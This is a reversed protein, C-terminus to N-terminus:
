DHEVEKRMEEESQNLLNNLLKTIIEGHKQIREALKVVLTRKKGGVKRLAVVDDDITTAPELMQNTMNHMFVTRMKEGKRAQKYTKRLEESHKQITNTLQQLESSHLALSLQMRQFNRQLSGIEDKSKTDPIAEYYHGDAIRVV